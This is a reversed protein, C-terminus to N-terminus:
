SFHKLYFNKISKLKFLDYINKKSTKEMKYDLYIEPFLSESSTNVSIEVKHYMSLNYSLCDNKKNDKGSSGFACFKNAMLFHQYFGDASILNAQDLDFYQGPEVTEFIKSFEQFNEYFHAKDGVLRAIQTALKIHDASFNKEEEVLLSKRTPQFCYINEFSNINKVLDQPLMENKGWFNEPVTSGFMVLNHSKAQYTKRNKIEYFAVQKSWAKPVLKEYKKSIILISIFYPNPKPHNFFFSLVGLYGDRLMAVPFKGIEEMSRYEFSYAPNAEFYYKFFFPYYSWYLEKYIENKFVPTTAKYQIKKDKNNHQIYKEIRDLM